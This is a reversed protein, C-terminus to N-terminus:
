SIAHGKFELTTRVGEFGGTNHKVLKNYASKVTFTYSPPDIWIRIDEVEQQPIAQSIITM